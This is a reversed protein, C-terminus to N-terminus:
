PFNFKEFKKLDTNVLKLLQADTQQLLEAM